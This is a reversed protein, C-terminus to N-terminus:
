FTVRCVEHRVTTQGQSTNDIPMGYRSPGTCKWNKGQTPKRVNERRLEEGVPGIEGDDTCGHIEYSFGMIIAPQLVTRSAQKVSMLNKEQLAHQACVTILEKLREQSKDLTYVSALERQLSMLTM